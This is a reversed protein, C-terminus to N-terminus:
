AIQKPNPGFENDGPQSDMCFWVLLVIGALPVFALCFWWGSKGLDHLRRVCAGINPMTLAGAAIYYILMAASEGVIVSVVGSLIGAAVLTLVSFLYNGWFEKRRARGEFSFFKQTVCQVFYGWLSLENNM